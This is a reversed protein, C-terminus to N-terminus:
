YPTSNALINKGEIPISALIVKGEIHVNANIEENKKQFNMHEMILKTVKNNALSNTVNALKCIIAHTVIAGKELLLTVMEFHSNDCATELCSNLYKKQFSIEKGRIL